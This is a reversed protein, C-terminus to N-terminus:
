AARRRRLRGIGALGTGLLLLTTPEPIAAADEFFYNTAMWGREASWQTMATGGGTLQLVRSVGTTTTGTLAASFLFPTSPGGGSSPAVVSGAVISYEIRDVLYLDGSLHFIGGVVNNKNDPTRTLSDSASLNFTQGACSAGTCLYPPNYGRSNADGM